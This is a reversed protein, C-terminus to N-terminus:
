SFDEVSGTGLHEPVALVALVALVDEEFAFLAKQGLRNEFNGFNAFHSLNVLKNVFVFALNYFYRSGDSTEFVGFVVNLHSWGAGVLALKHSLTGNSVAPPKEGGSPLALDTLVVDAFFAILNVCAFVVSTIGVVDLRDLEEFLVCLRAWATTLHNKLNAPARLHPTGRAVHCKIPHGEPNFRTPDVVGGM